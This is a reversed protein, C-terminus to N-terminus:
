GQVGRYKSAQVREQGAGVRRHGIFGLMVQCIRHMGVRNCNFSFNDAGINVLTLAVVRLRGPGILVFEDM